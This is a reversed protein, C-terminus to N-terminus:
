FQLSKVSKRPGDKGPDHVNAAIVDTTSTTQEDNPPKPLTRMKPNPTREASWMEQEVEVTEECTSQIANGDESTRSINQVSSEHYFDATREAPYKEWQFRGPMPTETNFAFNWRANAELIFPQLERGLEQGVGAGPSGFLQRRVADRCVFKKMKGLTM